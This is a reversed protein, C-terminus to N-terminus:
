LVEEEEGDDGEELEDTEEIVTEGATDEVVENSVEKVEEIVEENGM